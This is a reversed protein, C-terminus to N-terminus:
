QVLSIARRCADACRRCTEACIRCHEHMEAHRECEEACAECATICAEVVSQTVRPDGENQRGLIEATAACVAACDLNLRICRRLDAVMDEALCADACLRCTASCEELDHLIESLDSSNSVQRPHTDLMAQAHTMM